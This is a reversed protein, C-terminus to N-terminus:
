IEGGMGDMVDHRGFHRELAKDLKQIYHELAEQQQEIKQFGERTNAELRRIADKMSSGGNHTTEKYIHEVEKAIKETFKEDMDQHVERGVIATIQRVWRRHIFAIVAWVFGGAFGIGAIYNFWFNSSNIFNSAAM